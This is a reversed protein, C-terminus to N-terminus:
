AAAPEEKREGHLRRLDQQQEAFLATMDRLLDTMQQLVVPVTAEPKPAEVTEEATEETEPLRPRAREAARMLVVDSLAAAVMRTAAPGYPGNEPESGWLLLRHVYALKVEVDRLSFGPTDAVTLLTEDETETAAKGLPSKQEKEPLAHFLFESLVTRGAFKEFDANSEGLIDVSALDRDELM